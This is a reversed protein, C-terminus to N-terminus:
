VKNVFKLLSQENRDKGLNKASDSSACYSLGRAESGDASIAKPLADISLSLNATLLKLGMFEQEKKSFKVAIPVLELGEIGDAALAEPLAEVARQLQERADRDAPGYM